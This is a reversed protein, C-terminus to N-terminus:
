RTSLERLLIEKFVDLARWREPRMPIGLSITCTAQASLPVRVLDSTADLTADLMDAPCFAAGLGEVAMSLLTPMNESRAVVRPRVGANRLESYAIRGAIDDVSGLVFPCDGLAGLGQESLLAAADDALMGTARELVDRRVALLIEEQYLPTVEVGPHTSEFRAIAVDVEGREAKRVLERNTGEALRVCVGPLEALVASAIHPMLYSGRTHSVGVTLEGAGGGTVEGIQREMDLRAQRQERAYMLFVMGAPTLSFPNGRVILRAGLSKELSVLRASLTQQSIQLPEAAKTFNENEALTIFWDWSDLVM